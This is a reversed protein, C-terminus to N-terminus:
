RFDDRRYGQDGLTALTLRLFVADSARISGEITDKHQYVVEVRICDDKYIVSLERNRWANLRLDRVGIVGVGWRNTVFFEAAGDIDRTPGSIQTDDALYRVYGRAFGYAFNVGAETRDFDFHDNVLARGFLSLGGFPVGNAALVWDSARGNLGTNPAYVNTPTARFVRGLLVSAVQGGDWNVTGRGGVNLRQGGDYLDSGTFKDPDFLNTEDFVVIQSDENPISTNLKANPSLAIQALPELLVSAGDFRRYLPMSIDLGATAEGRGLVSTAPNTSLPASVDYLDGRLDGFPELRLGNSLTFSSRWNIDGSARRSNLSQGPDGAAVIPEVPLESRGLAAGSAIMRLRGGLIDETPDFRWELLPAVWPLSRGPQATFTPDSVTGAVSEFSLAAVSFYSNDSQRTAYLQSELQQSTNYYLGHTDNVNAIDYKSFIFPDSARQVSFGWNWQDNIHFLGDGLIYSRSTETGFKHGESDFDYEYTYGARINLSGSYFRARWEANLLPNVTSNIQPSILLDQSPSLALYYAQEYSFGRKQAYEVRPLMLGSTRGAEPDPHWLVPAYFVPLGKVEIVANRYFIMHRKRDEIIKSARISWSPTKAAGKATCVACPTYVARNLENVTESRRIAVDAAFSINDNLHASFGRAFGARLKDDLVIHSAFEATGDPNLIQAHGNVVVAGTKVNYIVEDGRLTHDQYRAEVSGRAIWINNHEDRIVNDAELYFGHQGLSDDGIARTKVPPPTKPVDLPSIPALTLPSRTPLQSAMQAHASTTLAFGAGAIVGLM